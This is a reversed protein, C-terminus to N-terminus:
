ISLLVTSERIVDTTVVSLQKKQPPRLPKPQPQPLLLQHDEMRVALSPSQHDETRVELSQSQHDETRVALSPSQHDEMRVVLSQSQHDEMRVALSPSQHDEMRVELSQSQHDVMRVALKLLQKKTLVTSMSWEMTVREMLHALDPNGMHGM